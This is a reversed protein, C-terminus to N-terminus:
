HCVITSNAHHSHPVEEALKGLGLGTGLAKPSPSSLETIANETSKGIGDCVPCDVNKSASDFCVPLKLAALGAYLSLNLLPENPLSNLSYISHRFSEILTKWRGM